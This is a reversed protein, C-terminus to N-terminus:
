SLKQGAERAQLWLRLVQPPIERGPKLASFRKPKGTIFRYDFGNNDLIAGVIPEAPSSFALHLAAVLPKTFDPSPEQALISNLEQIHSLFQPGSEGIMEKIAIADILVAEIVLLSKILV